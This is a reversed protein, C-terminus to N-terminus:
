FQVNGRIEIQRPSSAGTTTGFTPDQVGTDLGTWAVHNFANLFVGQLKLSIDGKIPVIKTLSLDTDFNSPDHLWLLQGFQGPTSAPSIYATNAEGNVQNIYKPDFM